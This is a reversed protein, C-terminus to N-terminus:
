RLKTRMMDRILINKAVYVHKQIFSLRCKVFFNSDQSTFSLDTNSSDFKNGEESFFLNHQIFYGLLSSKFNGYQMESSMKLLEINTQQIDANTTTYDVRRLKNILVVTGSRRKRKWMFEQYHSMIPKRCCALFCFFPFLDEM